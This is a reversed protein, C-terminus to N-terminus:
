CSQISLRAHSFDGAALAGAPVTFNLTGADGWGWGLEADQALQLLQIQPGDADRPTVPNAYSTDPWGFACHRDAANGDLGKMAEWLLEIVGWYAHKNYDIDGDLVDCADPLMTVAAAHMPVVPYVRAPAPASTEVARAADAPVVRWSDPDRLDLRLLDPVPIDPDARFFNLLGPRQAPLAEGLWGALADLDLVALLSLPLGAAQPWAAGPDLLAAGGLRCRGAAVDQEAPRELLFGRRALAAFQRGTQDGLRDVCMPLLVAPDDFYVAVDDWRM